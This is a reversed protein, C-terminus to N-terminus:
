DLLVDKRNCRKGKWVGLLVKTRTPKETWPAKGWTGLLCKKGVLAQKRGRLAKERYPQQMGEGIERTSAPEPKATSKRKKLKV